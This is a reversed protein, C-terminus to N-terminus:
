WGDVEFKVIAGTNANIYYEIIGMNGRFELEWVWQGYEWEVGSDTRFSASIGRSALDAYAIEIARELTISANAPLASEVEDQPPVDADEVAALAFLEIVAGSAADLIIHYLREDDYRVVIGIQM